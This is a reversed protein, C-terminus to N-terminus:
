LSFVIQGLIAGHLNAVLTYLIFIIVLGSTHQSRKFHEMRCKEAEWEVNGNSMAAISVTGNSKGLDWKCVCRLPLLLLGAAIAAFSYCCCRLQLLLLLLQLGALCCFVQLPLLMLSLLLLSM